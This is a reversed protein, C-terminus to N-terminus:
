FIGSPAITTLERNLLLKRQVSEIRRMGFKATGVVNISLVRSMEDDPRPIWTAFTECRALSTVGRRVSVRERAARLQM